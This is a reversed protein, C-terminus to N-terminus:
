ISAVYGSYGGVQIAEGDLLDDRKLTETLYEEPTQAESPLATKRVNLRASNQDLSSLAFATM